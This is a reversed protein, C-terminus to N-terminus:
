AITITIPQLSIQRGYGLLNVIDKLDSREANGEWSTNRELQYQSPLLAKDYKILIRNRDLIDKTYQTTNHIVNVLGDVENLGIVRKVETM